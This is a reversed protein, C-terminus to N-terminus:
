STRSFRIELEASNDMRPLEDYAAFVTAVPIEVAGFERYLHILAWMIEDVIILYLDRDSDRGSSKDFILTVIDGHLVQRTQSPKLAGYAPLGLNGIDQVISETLTSSAPRGYEEITFEYNSCFRGDRWSYPVPPWAGVNGYTANM